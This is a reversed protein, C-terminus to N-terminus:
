LAHVLFEGQRRCPHIIQPLGVLWTNAIQIHVQAVTIGSWGRRSSDVERLLRSVVEDQEEGIRELICNLYIIDMFQFVYFFKYMRVM